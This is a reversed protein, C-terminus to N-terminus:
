KRLKMILIILYKYKIDDKENKKTFYWIILIVMIFTDTGIRKGNLM